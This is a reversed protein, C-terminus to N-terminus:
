PLGSSNPISGSMNEVGSQFITLTMSRVRQAFRYVCVVTLANMRSFTYLGFAKMFAIWPAVFLGCM